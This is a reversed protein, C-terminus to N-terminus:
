WLHRCAVTSSGAAPCEDDGHPRTSRRRASVVSLEYRRHRRAKELQGARTPGRADGGPRSFDTNSNPPRAKAMNRERGAHPRPQEVHEATTPGTRGKDANDPVAKAIPERPKCTQQKCYL